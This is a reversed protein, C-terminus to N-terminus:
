GGAEAGRPDLRVGEPTLAREGLISKFLQRGLIPVSARRFTRQIAYVIIMLHAGATVIFVGEPGLRNMAAAAFIPGVVTGLGFLMLLGGSVKVFSGADAHDNAHAVAIAYLSYAAAGYIGVLTIVIGPQTPPIGFLVAVFKIVMGPQTTDIGFLVAGLAVGLAAIGALVYRRDMRDSLRGFPLQMVAGAIIPLSMMYTINAASLGIQAGYVPGLTGFAGNSIGILFCAAAAIPSNRWIAGLDLSVNEIPRPTEATSIATPILAFCYLIGVVIFLDPTEVDGAAAGLQGATAAALSVMTYLGFITGRNENGAKENLWSEIIMFAGAMTLGTFFRLAMWTVPNVIIGSVLVVAAGFASLIGFARIHGVRGVLRPAALCGLVFGAAWATGFLGLQTTSFGEIQGRLPMIMSQLGSAAQLFATGCLLALVALLSRYM